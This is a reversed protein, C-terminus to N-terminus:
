EKAKTKDNLCARGIRVLDENELTDKTMDESGDIMVQQLMAAACEGVDVKPLGITSHLM